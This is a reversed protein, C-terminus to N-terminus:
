LHDFSMTGILTGEEKMGQALAVHKPHTLYSQLYDASDLQMVVMLQANTDREVCSRYVMPDNLYPLEGDLEAFVQRVRAEAKDVDSGPALKLLVYHTM